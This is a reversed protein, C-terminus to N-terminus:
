YYNSIIFFNYKDVANKNKDCSFKIPHISFQQHDTYLINLVNKRELDWLPRIHLYQNKPALIIGFSAHVACELFIRSEYMKKSLEVFKSIYYNPIYYLDSLGIFIDFVGFFQTINIKWDLNNEYIEYLKICREYHFWSKNITKIARFEYFWPISFDFNELEWVKIYVDDNILLYGKYYPFKSYINGICNYSFYGSNSENCIIINNSSQEITEPYIYAINPFYKKYLKEM